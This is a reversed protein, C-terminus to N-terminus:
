LLLEATCRYARAIGEILPTLQRDVALLRRGDESKDAAAHELAQLMAQELEAQGSEGPAPAEDPPREAAPGGADDEGGHGAALAMVAALQLDLYRNGSRAAIGYDDFRREDVSWTEDLALWQSRETEARYRKALAEVAAADTETRVFFLTKERDLLEAADAIGKVIQAYYGPLKDEPLHLEVGYIPQMRLAPDGGKDNKM